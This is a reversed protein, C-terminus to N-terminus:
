KFPNSFHKTFPKRNKRKSGDGRHALELTLLIAEFNEPRYLANVTLGHEKAIKRIFLSQYVLIVEDFNEKSSTKAHCETCLPVCLLDSGKAQGRGITHHAEVPWRGCKQCHQEHIFALYPLSRVRDRRKPITLM